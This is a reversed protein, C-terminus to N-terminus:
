GKITKFHHLFEFIIRLASSLILSIRVSEIVELHQKFTQDWQFEKNVKKLTLLRVQDRVKACDLYELKPIPINSTIVFLISFKLLNEKAFICTFLFLFDLLHPLVQYSELDLNDLSLLVNLLQCCSM